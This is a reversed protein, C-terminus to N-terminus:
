QGEWVEKKRSSGRWDSGKKERTGSRSIKDKTIGSRRRRYIRRMNRRRHDCNQNGRTATSAFGTTSEGFFTQPHFIHGGHHEINEIWGTLVWEIHSQYNSPRGKKDLCLNHCQFWWNYHNEPSRRQFGIYTWDQYDWNCHLSSLVRHVITYSLSAYISQVDLWYIYMTCLQGCYYESVVFHLIELTVRLM